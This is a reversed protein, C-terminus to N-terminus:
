QMFETANRKTLDGAHDAGAHDAGGRTGRMLWSTKTGGLKEGSSPYISRETSAETRATSADRMQPQALGVARAQRWPLFM